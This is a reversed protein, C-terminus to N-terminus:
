NRGYKEIHTNIKRGQRRHPIHWAFNLTSWEINLFIGILSKRRNLKVKEKERYNVHRTFTLVTNHKWETVFVTTWKSEYVNVYMSVSMFWNTILNFSKHSRCMGVIFKFRMIFRFNAAAGTARIEHSDTCFGSRKACLFRVKRGM